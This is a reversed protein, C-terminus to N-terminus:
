ENEMEGRHECCQDEDKGKNKYQLNVFNMVLHPWFGDLQQATIIGRRALDHLYKYRVDIHKAKISPTEGEIQSIAAQNDVNKANFCDADHGGILCRTCRILEHSIKSATVLKAKITSLSM